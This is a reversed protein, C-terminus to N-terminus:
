WVPQSGDLIEQIRVYMDPDVLDFVITDSEKDFAPFVLTGRIISRAWIFETSTPPQIRIRLFRLDCDKRKMAATGTERRFPRILAIPYTTGRISITFIFVLQAFMVRDGTNVIVCDHRAENFHSPTCRLYDTDMRWTIRSEYFSKLFRFETIQNAVLYWYFIIIEM